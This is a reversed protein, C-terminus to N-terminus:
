KEMISLFVDELSPIAAEGVGEPNCESVIRLQLGNEVRKVNGVPYKYTYKEVDGESVVVNWVKGEVVKELAKPTGKKVLKGKRLILIEKAIYEVDPVIHTALLVIKDKSLKSIINRFRIREVPDLGATPEDLVLIDPRNLIAQAIGLRQRMGGSLAGIKKKYSDTLNVLELVEEIRSKVCKAPIDKIACMYKLFEDSRFNKYFTPDQPLYGIRNLYSTCMQKVDIGDLFVKGENAELAGIIINILTTKGAGNPGLLGYIGETLAASFDDLAYQKGYFKKINELRLEMESKRVFTNIFWSNRM